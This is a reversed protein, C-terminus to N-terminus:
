VILIRNGKELERANKGFSKQYGLATRRERSGEPYMLGIRGQEESEQFNYKIAEKTIPQNLLRKKLQEHYGPDGMILIGKFLPNSVEISFNTLEKELENTTKAVIDLWFNYTSKIKDSVIFLDIDSYPKKSGCLVVLKISDFNKKYMKRLTDVLTNSNYYKPFGLKSILAFNGNVESYDHFQEFLEKFDPHVKSMKKDFLSKKNLKEALFHELWMAFGEYNHLNQSLFEKLEGRKTVYKNFLPNNSNVQFHSNKPLKTVGLMEKETEELSKELSVIKQGPIAHECFLGHGFYEHLLNVQLFKSSKKLHATLSRPLYVGQSTQESKNLYENDSHIEYKSKEPKINFESLLIEESRLILDNLKM